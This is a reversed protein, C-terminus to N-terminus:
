MQLIGTWDVEEAGIYGALAFAREDQRFTSLMAETIFPSAKSISGACGGTRVNWMKRNNQFTVILFEAARTYAVYALRREEATKDEVANIDYIDTGIPSPIIYNDFGIIIVARFETGKSAHVTMLTVADETKSDDASFNGRGDTEGSASLSLSATFRRLMEERYAEKHMRKLEPDDRNEKFFHSANLVLQRLNGLKSDEDSKGAKLDEKRCYESFGSLLSAAEVFDALDSTLMSKKLTLLLDFLPRFKLATKKEEASAKPDSLAYQFAGFLSSNQAVAVASLDQLSKKGIKRSPTNYIRMFSADDDPNLVLRLYACMDKIEARDYFRLGGYIRYPIHTQNIFHREIPQSLANNRYIVAIESYKLGFDNKLSRIIASVNDAENETNFEAIIVKHANPDTFTVEPMKGKTAAAKKQYVEYFEPTMLYKEILRDKSQAILSDAFTLINQTSRYNVSLPFVAVDPLQKTLASMNQVKAGRWAYICQDDDGVALVRGTEGRLLLILRYQMSNTDQFEDVLIYRFRKRIKDATAPNKSLMKVCLSILSPFDVSSTAACMHEYLGFLGKFILDQGASGFPLKNPTHLALHRFKRVEEYSLGSGRGFEQEFNIKDLLDKVKTFGTWEASNQFGEGLDSLIKRLMNKQDATDIVTFNSSLGAEKHFAYLLSMCLSHFTCIKMGCSADLNMASFIRNKMEGAARNTFTVALVSYPPVHMHRIMYMIRSTIVHTKGTGAGAVVVIDRNDCEVIKRQQENLKLDSLPDKESHINRDASLLFEDSM